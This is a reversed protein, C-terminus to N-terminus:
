IISTNFAVVIKEGITILPACHPFFAPITLIEGEEASINMINNNDFPNKIQTVALASPLKIYFINTFHCDPHVHWTHHGGVLYKQFWLAVLKIGGFGYSSEFARMHNIVIPMILPEYSRALEPRIHYDTIHDQNDTKNHLCPTQDFSKIIQDKLLSFSEVPRKYYM